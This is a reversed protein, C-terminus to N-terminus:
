GWPSWPESGWSRALDSSPIKDIAKSSFPRLWNSAYRVQGVACIDQLQKGGMVERVRYKNLTDAQNESFGIKAQPTMCHVNSQPPHNYPTRSNLRLDAGELNSSQTQHDCCVRSGELVWDRDM